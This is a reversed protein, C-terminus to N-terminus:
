LESKIRAPIDGFDNRKLFEVLGQAIERRPAPRHTWIECQACGQEFLMEVGEITTCGALVAARLLPTDRPRYAADLVIPRLRRLLEDGLTLGSSAPVCSVVLDLRPLADVGGELDACPMGGFEEALTRAKDASRNYVHLAGVGMQKVAYCAARATGGGGIVLACCTRATADGNAAALADQLLVRIGLWDTNDATITGDNALTLTNLGGIAAAAPSLSDVHPMLEEKLPITVSGGGCGEKRLRRLVELADSTEAIGYWHACGNAAFGANHMAPSPSHQTPSGFIYFARSPLYGFTRRAELLQTVSLQGPAAVNKLLPHTVPTFITNLVRSMCGQAGMALAIYPVSLKADAAAIHVDLAHSPQKASTVLKALSALGGLECTRLLRQLEAHPPTGSLVHHSGIIRTGSGVAAACTARLQDGNRDAEIDLWEVGARLAMRCLAWYEDASGGFSGGQAKSRVTFIIPLPCHKRLVALQLQVDVIKSSHLLDARLEVADINRWLETPLPLETRLDAYTLSLFFSHDHPMPLPQGDLRCQKLLRVLRLEHASWDAEAPAALLDFDSCEDYWPQRRQYIVRPPDGLSPRHKDMSLYAEVDDIPKLAQVVPWHSRLAARGADTEVIGGGCALVTHKPKLTLTEVLLAVERERFTKWGHQQVTSMIPEYQAEYTADLDVFEWGLKQAAAMGLHTKGAGRMGILVITAEAKTRTTPKVTHPPEYRMGLKAQMDSWFEPYTKDVCAKQGITIGPVRAGLVAFSMAIRHDNHCAVETPRLAAADPDIGNVWIGDPLEGAVIGIKDLEAVMVEIRNCEKVRQNAIGTIRSTGDAVAALAVATMFADTMTEMDVTLAKLRTGRAPGSVTTNREDQEVVCGMDRLVNAFGADGQISTSGVAEATVTGGTIAAIALPYTASSADCEVLVVPPNVYCGKPVRYTTLGERKVVIGFQAMLAVTMDIYPQSVPVEKLVLEVPKQAYPASLLVSSVFQSSVKGSLEIRGGPLGTSGVRVPLSTPSELHEVECGCARLAESLDSIPRVKMRADGTLVSSRGEECILTACTTLFRAATGANGLYMPEVPTKFKGGLGSLLLIRGGESWEFPGAGMAQLATIMVQTDDSLLLGNIACRGAGMAAMLLVRNSISKSGPVHLTGSLAAPQPLVTLRPSLLLEITAAEVPQPQESCIGIDQLISCRLMGSIDKKDTSMKAMLEPVRLYTDPCHTPLGYAKLARSIRGVVSPALQGLDRALVAEYVMGMSVCEGHLLAPSALAEIAHGITHGFNLTSRLGTEKEDLAIVEAKLRVAEHVVRGIYPFQLAMIADSHLEMLEFLPMSRTCGMKIAEALGGAIDREGLSALLDMDAYVHRPRHFAGIMNKGAPVNVATKGSISSDLMALMSTPVQIFPVGCMFTAAVYGSLDGVVGGGLAVICTDRQCRNALMFDEIEEKIRRCKSKEGPPIQFVLPTKGCAQFAAVLCAGYLSFVTHDSIIVFSSAKIGSAPELIMDPVRELLKHGVYVVSSGIVDIRHLMDDVRQRKASGNAGDSSIARAM